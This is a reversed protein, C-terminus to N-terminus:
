PVLYRVLMNVIAVQSTLVIFILGVAWMSMRKATKVKDVLGNTIITHMENQRKEINCLRGDMRNFRGDCIDFHDKHEKAM